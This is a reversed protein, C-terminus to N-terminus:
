EKYINTVVNQKLHEYFKYDGVNGTLYVSSLQLLFVASFIVAIIWKFFDNKILTLIALSLLFLALLQLYAM